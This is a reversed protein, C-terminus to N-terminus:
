FSVDYVVHKCELAEKADDVSVIAVKCEENRQLDLEMWKRHCQRHARRIKKM